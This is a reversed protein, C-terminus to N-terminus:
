PEVVQLPDVEFQMRERRGQRVSFIHKNLPKSPPNVFFITLANTFKPIQQPPTPPHFRAGRSNVWTIINKNFDPTAPGSNQTVRGWKQWCNHDTNSTSLAAPNVARVGVKLPLM